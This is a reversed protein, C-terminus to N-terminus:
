GRHSQTSVSFLWCLCLGPARNGLPPHRRGAAGHADARGEGGRGRLLRTCLKPEKVSPPTGRALRDPAGRSQGLTEPGRWQHPLAAAVLQSCGRGGQGRRPAHASALHSGSFMASGMARGGRGLRISM